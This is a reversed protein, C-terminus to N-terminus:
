YAGPVPQQLATNIAMRFQDVSVYGVWEKLVNGRGDILVFYPEIRYHFQQKLAETAPDDIDLYIFNMRYAYENEIGKVIPAMALSPGSWYAFFEILQPKGAALKVTDPDTAQIQVNMWPPAPLPTRTPTPTFTLTPTPTLYRTQTPTPTETPPIQTFSSPSPSASPASSSTTASASTSLVPPTTKTATQNTGSDFFTPYPGQLNPYLGNSPFEPQSGPYTTAQVPLPPYSSRTSSESQLPTQSVRTAQPTITISPIPSTDVSASIQPYETNQSNQPQVPQPYESSFAEITVTNTSITPSEQGSLSSTKTNGAASPSITPTTSSQEGSRGITDVLKGPLTCAFFIASGLLVLVLYIRVIAHSNSWNVM